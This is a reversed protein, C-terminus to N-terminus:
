LRVSVRGMYHYGVRQSLRGKGEVGGRWGLCLRRANATVNVGRELMLDVYEIILCVLDLHGNRSATSLNGGYSLDRGSGANSDGGNKLALKIMNIMGDQPGPYQM